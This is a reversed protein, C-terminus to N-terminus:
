TVVPPDQDVRAAGSGTRHDPCDTAEQGQQTGQAVSLQSGQYRFRAPSYVYMRRVKPDKGAKRTM